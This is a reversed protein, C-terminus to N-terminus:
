FDLQMQKLLEAFRRHSRLPDYVPDMKLFVMWYSCEEFGKQLYDLALEHEGLGIYVRAIM